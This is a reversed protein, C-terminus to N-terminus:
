SMFRINPIDLLHDIRVIFEYDCSHKFKSNKGYGNYEVIQFDLNLNDIKKQIDNIGLKKCIEM